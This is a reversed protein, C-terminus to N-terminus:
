NSLFESLRFSVFQFKEVQKPWESLLLRKARLRTFLLKANLKKKWNQNYKSM